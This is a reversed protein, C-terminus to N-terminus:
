HDIVGQRVISFYGKHNTFTQTAQGLCLISIHNSGMTELCNPFGMCHFGTVVELPIILCIFCNALNDQIVQCVEWIDEGATTRVMSFQSVPLLLQHPYGAEHLCHGGAERFHPTAAYWHGLAHHTPVLQAIVNMFTPWHM